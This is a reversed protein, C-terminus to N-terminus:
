RYNRWEIENPDVIVGGMMDGNYNGMRVLTANELHTCYGFRWAGSGKFRWYYMTGSPPRM